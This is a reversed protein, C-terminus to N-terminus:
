STSGSSFNTMACKSFSSYKRHKRRFFFEWICNTSDGFNYVKAFGQERIVQAAMTRHTRGQGICGIHVGNIQKEAAEIYRSDTFFWCDNRSVLVLGDGRFGMAYREGSASTVMMADIGYEPLKAAIQKIHNM